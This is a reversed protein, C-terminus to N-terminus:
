QKAHPHAGNYEKMVTRQRFFDAKEFDASPLVDSSLTGYLLQVCWTIV